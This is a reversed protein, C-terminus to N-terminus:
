WEPDSLVQSPISYEVREIDLSISGWWWIFNLIIDLVGLIIPHTRMAYHNVRQSVSDYYALEYELWAIVNVKPCIGKPFSIFVRIRGAIPYTTGSRNKESFPKPMLYGVFTSIGNFLSILGFWFTNTASELHRMIFFPSNLSYRVKNNTTLLIQKKKLLNGVTKKETVFLTHPFLVFSVENSLELKCCGRIHFHHWM